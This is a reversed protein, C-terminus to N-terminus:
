VMMKMGEGKTKNSPRTHSPVMYLANFSRLKDLSDIWLYVDRYKTGRM